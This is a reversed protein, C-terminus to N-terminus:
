DLGKESECPLSSLEGRTGVQVEFLCSGNVLLTDGVYGHLTTSADHGYSICHAIYLTDKM